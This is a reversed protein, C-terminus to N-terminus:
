RKYPIRDGKASPIIGLEILAEEAKMLAERWDSHSNGCHGGGIHAYMYIEEIKEKPLTTIEEFTLGEIVRLARLAIELDFNPHQKDFAKDEVTLRPM